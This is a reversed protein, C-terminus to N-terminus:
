SRKTFKTQCKPCTINIKGKGKPVSLIQKCAPCKYLHFNKRKKMRSKKIRFFRTVSAKFSLYKTNEIYRKSRNKSFVRYYTFIFLALSLVSYVGNIVSNYSTIVLVIRSIFFLVLWSGVLFNSFNDWGYRGQMFSMIKLRIKQFM